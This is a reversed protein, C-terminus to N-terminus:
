TTPAERTKLPLALEPQRMKVFEGTDLRRVDHEPSKEEEEKWASVTAYEPM